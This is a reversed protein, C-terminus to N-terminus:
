DGCGGGCGGSDGKYKNNLDGTVWLGAFFVATGLVSIAVPGGSGGGLWAVSILAWLLGLGFMIGGIAIMRNGSRRAKIRAVSPWVTRAPPGFEQRYVELTKGYRELLRAEDKPGKSPEHHLPQGFIEGCLHDWYDRTYTLHLHWAKDVDENPAVGGPVVQSLYLFRRYEEVVKEAHEPLWSQELELKLSFPVAAEPDDFEFALLRQWLDPKLM